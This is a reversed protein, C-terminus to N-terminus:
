SRTTTFRVSESRDGHTASTVRLRGNMAADVPAKKRVTVTAQIVLSQSPELRVSRLGRGTVVGTVDKGNMLYTVKFEDNSGRGGITFRDAFAADNTVTVSFRVSGGRPASGSALKGPSSSGRRITATPNAMAVRYTREVTSTNSSRDTATVVFRQVGPTSTDLESGNPVTGVCSSVGSGGDEDTCSYSATMVAGKPIVLGQRPRILDVTPDTTDSSTEDAVTITVLQAVARYAGNEAVLRVSYTGSRRPVGALYGEGSYLGPPLTGELRLTPSPSGTATFTVYDYNDVTMAVSAASTITPAVADTTFAWQWVACGNDSFWLDGDASVESVLASRYDTTKQNFAVGIGNVVALRVVHHEVFQAWVSGPGTVVGTVGRVTIAPEVTWNGATESMRRVTDGGDTFAIWISGDPDETLDIRHGTIGVPVTDHVEWVGNTAAIRQVTGATANGVWISGDSHHLMGSPGDDVTIPEQPTPNGDVNLIQTVTDATDDSVWVSGSAGAVLSEPSSGLLGPSSVTWEDADDTVVHVAATTPDLFWVTGDSATVLSTAPNAVELQEPNNLNTTASRYVVLRPQDRDSLFVDSGSSTISTVACTLWGGTVGRRPVTISAPPTGPVTLELDHVTATPGNTTRLGLDYVGETATEAMGSITGTGDYNDTLTLGYPLPQDVSLRPAPFGGETTITVSSQRGVEFTATAASTVTSTVVTDYVIPQVTDSDNNVVWLTGDSAVTLTGPDAGVYINEILNGTTLDYRGVYQQDRFSIWLDGDLYEIDNQACTNPEIRRFWNEWVPPTHKAYGCGGDSLYLTGDPGATGWESRYSTDLATGITWDGEIEEIPIISYTNTTIWGAGTSTFVISRVGVPTTIAEQVQWVGANEAIRQVKPQDLFTVWISGDPATALDMTMGTLAVAMPTGVTWGGGESKVVRVVTGSTRNAVWVNGHLDVTVGTPRSGSPLAIASQTTVTGDIHTIQRVTDLAEDTVWVSGDAGAALDFPDSGQGFSVPALSGWAQVTPPEDAAANRLPLVTTGTLLTAALGVRVWSRECRQRKRVDLM